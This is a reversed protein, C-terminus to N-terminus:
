PDSSFQYKWTSLGSREHQERKDTLKSEYSLLDVRICSSQLFFYPRTCMTSYLKFQRCHIIVILTNYKICMNIGDLNKEVIWNYFLRNSITHCCITRYVPLINKM